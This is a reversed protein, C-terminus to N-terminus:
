LVDFSGTSRCGKCGERARQTRVGRRPKTETEDDVVCAFGPLAFSVCYVPRM